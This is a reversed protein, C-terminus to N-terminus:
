SSDQPGSKPQERILSRDWKHLWHAMEGDNTDFALSVVPRTTYPDKWDRLRKRVEKGIEVLKELEEKERMLNEVTAELYAIDYKQADQKHLASAGWQLDATIATNGFRRYVTLLYRILHEIQGNWKPADPGMLAVDDDWATLLYGKESM